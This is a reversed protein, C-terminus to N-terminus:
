DRANTKTPRGSREHDDISGTSVFRKWVNQVTTRPIGLYRSTERQGMVNQIKELILLRMTKETKVM